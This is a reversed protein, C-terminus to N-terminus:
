PSSANLLVVNTILRSQDSHATASGPPTIPHTASGGKERRGKKKESASYVNCAVGRKTLM